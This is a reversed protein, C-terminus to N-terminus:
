KLVKYIGKRWNEVDCAYWRSFRRDSPGGPLNTHIEDTAMDAIIRYSPAFTMMRGAARFIQGQIITARSGPLPMPRYDFGLIRPLKGDFLLHTM